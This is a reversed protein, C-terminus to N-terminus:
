YDAYFCRNTKIILSASKINVGLKIKSLLGSIFNNTDIRLM